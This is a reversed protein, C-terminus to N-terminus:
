RDLCLIVARRQKQVEATHTHISAETTLAGDLPSPLYEDEEPESDSISQPDSDSDLNPAEAEHGEQLAKDRMERCTILWILTAM